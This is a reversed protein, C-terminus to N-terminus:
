IYENLSLSFYMLLIYFHFLPLGRGWGGVGSGSHMYTKGFLQDLIFSLPIWACLKSKLILFLHVHYVICRVRLAGVWCRIEWLM